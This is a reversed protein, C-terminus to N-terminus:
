TKVRKSLRMECQTGVHAVNPMCKQGSNLVTPPTFEFDIESDSSDHVDEYQMEKKMKLETSIKKMEDQFLLKQVNSICRCCKIDNCNCKKNFGRSKMMVRAKHRKTEEPQKKIVFKLPTCNLYPNCETELQKREKLPRMEIFIEGNRKLVHLTSKLENDHCSSDDITMKRTANSLPITDTPYSKLYHKMLNMVTKDIKGPYWSKQHHMQIKDHRWGMNSPVSECSKIINCESRHFPYSNGFNYSYKGIAKRKM